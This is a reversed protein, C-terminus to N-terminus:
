EMNLNIRRFEIVTLDRSQGKLYDDITIKPDKVFNQLLLTYEKYYKNLAGNVIRDLIAEPKGQEIAKERAIKEEREVIKAPISNKDVSIPNMAAIQMAVDRAVQTKVIVQNFGVIVALKNGPHVYAVTYPAELYEYIGLEMKEGSIGSRETIWECIRRGDIFLDNLDEITRPKNELTVSLIKRVMDVFDEGKAVFDTECKVAVISAFGQKSSALVCGESAERSERKSAIVKGKKRIVEVAKDYNGEAERLANKCDMVGAGTMKRLYQVDLKTVAM